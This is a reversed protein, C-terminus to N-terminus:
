CYNKSSLLLQTECSFKARFGHNLPTLIGYQELHTRFHKCITHELIKCSVCTLSVLRYNEPICRAGKKFVLAVFSKTWVSPLTSTEINQKYICTLIPALEHALERLLRCLLNDPGSAKGFNLGQLLKEVGYQDITLPKIAPYNPGYLRAHTGGSDRTFVSAFQRSLIDAKKTGDSFLRGNEKLAAVGLKDQRQFLIYRWFPKSNNDALSLNLIDNIYSWRARRIEKLTDRKHVKYCEWHSPKRTPKARSFLRQKKMCM